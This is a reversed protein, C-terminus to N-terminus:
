LFSCGGSYTKTVATDLRRIRDVYYYKESSPSPATNTEYEVNPTTTNTTHDDDIVDRVIINEREVFLVSHFHIAGRGSAFENTLLDDAVGCNPHMCIGMWLEMKACLYHTVIKQYVQVAKAFASDGVLINMALEISNPMNWAKVYNHLLLRLAYEHYEALSGTHFIGPVTQNVYSMYFLIAKYEM